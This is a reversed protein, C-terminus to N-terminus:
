GDLLFCLTQSDGDYVSLCLCVGGAKQVAVAVAVVVVVLLLPLLLLLLPRRSRSPQENKAGNLVVTMARVASLLSPPM